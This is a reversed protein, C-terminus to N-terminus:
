RTCGAVNGTVGRVNQRVCITRDAAIGKPLLELCKRGKSLLLMPPLALVCCQRALAPHPTLGVKCDSRCGSQTVMAFGMATRLIKM